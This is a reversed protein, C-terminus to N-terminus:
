RSTRRRRRRGRATAASISGSTERRCRRAQLGALEAVRQQEVLVAADDVVQHDAARDVGGPGAREVDDDVGAGLVVVEGEDGGGGAALGREVAGVVAGQEGQLAGLGDRHHGAEDGAGGVEAEHVVRREVPAAGLRTM